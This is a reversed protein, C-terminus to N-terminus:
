FQQRTIRLFTNVATIIDAEGFPKNMIGFPSHALAQAMIDSEPYGTIITVPLTPKINKIHKFLTAGDMGMMKLDLFVLDFDSQKVLELGESGTEATVVSHGLEELTEKFLLRIMQEDDVVLINAKTVISSRQLWGDISDKSFRWQHGVKTAPISRRKLLRYITKETVRLYDAVEQVIMLETM